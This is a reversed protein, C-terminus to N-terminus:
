DLQVDDISSKVVFPDDFEGTPDVQVGHIDCNPIVKFEVLFIPTRDLFNKKKAEQDKNILGIIRGPSISNRECVIHNGLAVASPSIILATKTEISSTEDSTSENTKVFVPIAGVTKNGNSKTNLMIGLQDKYIIAILSYNPAVNVGETVATLWEPTIEEFQTPLNIAVKSGSLNIEITKM